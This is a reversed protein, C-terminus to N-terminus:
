HLQCFLLRLFAKHSLKDSYLNLKLKLNCETCFSLLMGLSFPWVLALWAGAINAYDFLGSLRGLPEGGPSMFWIILGGFLQWPGEWGFWLQGFGTILVPVTGSVLWLSCKRRADPTMLYPQFGWFCWFFPLWNALGVWALWGTYARFCGILLLVGAICFPINWPDKWYGNLRQRNGLFVATLLFLGSLFASAALFLLGLQFCIWGRKNSFTPCDQGLYSALNM